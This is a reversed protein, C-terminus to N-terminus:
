VPLATFIIKLAMEMCMGHDCNECKGGIIKEKGGNEKKKQEKARASVGLGIVGRLLLLVVDLFVKAINRNAFV